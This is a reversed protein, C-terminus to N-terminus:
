SLHFAIANHVVEIAHVEYRTEHSNPVHNL